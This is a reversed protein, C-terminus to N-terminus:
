DPDIALLFSRKWINVASSGTPLRNGHRDRMSHLVIKNLDREIFFVSKVSKDAGKIWHAARRVANFALTFLKLAIQGFNGPMNVFRNSQIAM